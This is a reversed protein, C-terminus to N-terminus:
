REDAIEALLEPATARIKALQRATRASNMAALVPIAPRLISAADEHKGLRWRILGTEAAALAHVRFHTAPNWIDCTLRYHQEAAALEGMAEFSKAAQHVTIAKNPTWTAIWRPMADRM